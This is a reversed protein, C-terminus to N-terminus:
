VSSRMFTVYVSFYSEYGIIENM